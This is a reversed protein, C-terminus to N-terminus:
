VSRVDDDLEEASGGGSRMEDDSGLSDRAPPRAPALRVGGTGSVRHGSLRLAAPFLSPLQAAMGGGRGGGGGGGGGGGDGDGGGGGGDGGMDGGMGRSAAAPSTISAPSTIQPPPPFPLPSAAM